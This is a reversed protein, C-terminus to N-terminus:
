QTRWLTLLSELGLSDEMVVLILVGEVEYTTKTVEILGLSDEM